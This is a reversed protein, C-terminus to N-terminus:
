SLYFEPMSLMADLFIRLKNEMSKVTNEDDLNNLYHVYEITWEYDPLGPILIDKLYIIQKDTIPQPFLLTVLSQILEIIDSPNPLSEVLSLVDIIYTNGSQNIGALSMARTFNMRYPLTVSNIWIEYYSPEQYYSNWGAVSPPNGYSMQLQGLFNFLTLNIKYYAKLDEKPLDVKLTKLVSFIFDVPNKILCGNNLHDYFHQSSLLTELVPIIEYNNQIFIDVLPEIVNTETVEDIEYYVFWRYFKRCIFRAVERKSFIIDILDLYEEAGNNELVANDFKESLTKTGTDHKSTRFYSGVDIDERTKYGQDKWGTLVRAVESIDTETYNTYDGPSILPGKGITFLELLERAFNENPANKTNQNGNLYRLMSPNITIEKVFERFNGLANTRLTTFYHYDFKPDNINATVFHNHWFTVMKESISVEEEGINMLAWANFSRNRHGTLNIDAHYPAEIWTSGIPVFPDDQYYYNVPPDPLLSPAFLQNITQELGDSVTQEIQEITPGYMTRRLLHAAETTTWAGTYKELGSSVFSKKSTLAKISESQSISPRGLLTRLSTRRDM